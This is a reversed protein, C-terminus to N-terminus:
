MGATPHLVQVLETRLKKKTEHPDDCPIDGMLALAETCSEGFEEGLAALAAGIPINADAATYKFKGADRLANQRKREEVVAQLVDYSANM